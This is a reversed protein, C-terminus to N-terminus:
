AGSQFIMLVYVFLDFQGLQFWKNHYLQCIDNPFTTISTTFLITASNITTATRMTTDASCKRLTYVNTDHQRGPHVRQSCSPGAKFVNDSLSWIRYFHEEASNMQQLFVLTSVSMALPLVDAGM